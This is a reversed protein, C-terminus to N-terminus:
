SVHCNVCEWCEWKYRSSLRGCRACYWGRCRNPAALQGAPQLTITPKVRPLNEFAHPLLKLFEERYALEQPEKGDSIWFETCTPNLCMGNQKYVFPSRKFCQKCEFDSEKAKTSCDLSAIGESTCHSLQPTKELEQPGMWWPIGQGECWQFAFKWRVIHHSEGAPQYEAPIGKSIAFMKIAFKGWAHSIWYIGLVVYTYGPVSLDYPFLAYKDDALLVLPRKEKYNKLLARVSKDTATQDQASQLRRGTTSDLLSEAKGGRDRVDVQIGLSSLIGV